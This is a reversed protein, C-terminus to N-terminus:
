SIADAVLRHGAIGPPRRTPNKAPTGAEEFFAEFGGPSHVDFLRAVDRDLSRFYTAHRSPRVRLRGSWESSARVLRSNSFGMSFM